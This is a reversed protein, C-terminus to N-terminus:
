SLGLCCLLFCVECTQRTLATTKGTIMYPHSLQVVFFASCWLISAKSSHHQLLSKLGKSLLILGTLGWPCWDQINMLLVSPSASAGINQSGSPFPQCVPFSGSATFSQLCSSFPVVPHSPQIADGVRHVHTQAFEPLQHHVPFGPTSCDVPDCDSVMSCSFQVSAIM